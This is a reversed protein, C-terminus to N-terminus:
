EVRRRSPWLFTGVKRCADLLSQGLSRAAITQPDSSGSPREVRDRAQSQQEAPRPSFGRMSHIARRRRAKVRTFIYPGLRQTVANLRALERLLDNKM